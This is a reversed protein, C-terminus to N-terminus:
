RNIHRSGPPKGGRLAAGGAGQTITVLDRCSAYYHRLEQPVDNGNVSVAASLPNVALAAANEAGDASIEDWGAIKTETFASALGENSLSLGDAAAPMAVLFCALLLSLLGYKKM